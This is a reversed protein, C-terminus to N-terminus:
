LDIHLTDGPESKKGSRSDGLTIRTSEKIFSVADIGVRWRFRWVAGPIGVEALLYDRNDTLEKLIKLGFSEERATQKVEGQFEVMIDYERTRYAKWSANEFISNFAERIRTSDMHVEQHLPLRPLTRRQQIHVRASDRESLFADGVLRIFRLSDVPATIYEKLLSLRKEYVRISITGRDMEISYPEYRRDLFSIFPGAERPELGSFLCVTKPVNGGCSFLLMM